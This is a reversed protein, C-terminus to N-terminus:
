QGPRGKTAPTGQPPTKDGPPRVPGDGPKWDEPVVGSGHCTKCVHTDISGTGTCPPCTKEGDGPERHKQIPVFSAPPMRVVM